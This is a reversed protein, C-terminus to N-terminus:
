ILGERKLSVFRGDGIIIHDVFELGLLEGANIMKETLEIDASSPTPDGSPHNHLLIVAVASYHLALKFVERPPTISSNASGMSVTEAKLLENRSNLFVGKLCERELYRMESMFLHVADEPTEIVPKVTGNFAALRKGLEFCAKIQTAKAIKIGDLECLEKASASFLAKLNGDYRKLLGNSLDIVNFGKSGTRLIIALLESTSLAETGFKLLRERPRIDEPLDKITYRRM